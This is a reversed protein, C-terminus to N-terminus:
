SGGISGVTATGGAEEGRSKIRGKTEKKDESYEEEDEEEHKRQEECVGQLRPGLREHRLRQWARLVRLM